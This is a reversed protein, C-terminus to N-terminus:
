FLPFRSTPTARKYHALSWLTNLWSQVDAGKSLLLKTNSVLSLVEIGPSRETGGTVGYKEKYIRLGHDLYSTWITWRTEPATAKAGPLRNRVGKFAARPDVGAALLASILDVAESSPQSGLGVCACYLLYSEVFAYSPRVPEGEAVLWPRISKRYDLGRLPTVRGCPQSENAKELLSEREPLANQTLLIQPLSVGLPEPKQEPFGFHCDQASRDVNSPIGLKQCVYLVMGALSAIGVLDARNAFSNYFFPLDGPSPLSHQERIEPVHYRLALAEYDISELLQSQTKGAYKEALSIQDFIFIMDYGASNAGSDPTKASVVAYYLYALHGRALSIHTTSRSPAHAHMFEKGLHGEILFDRATRHIFSVRTLFLTKGDHKAVPELDNALLLEEREDETTELLGATRSLVRTKLTDCALALGTVPEKEYCFPVDEVLRRQDVLYFLLLDM